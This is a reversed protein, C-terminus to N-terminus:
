FEKIDKLEPSRTFHSFGVKRGNLAITSEEFRPGEKKSVKGILFSKPEQPTGDRLLRMLLTTIQNQSRLFKKDSVHTPLIIKCWETSFDLM